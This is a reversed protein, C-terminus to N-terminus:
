LNKGSVLGYKALGSGLIMVLGLVFVLLFFFSMDLDICFVDQSHVETRSETRQIFFKNQYFINQSKAFDNLSPM